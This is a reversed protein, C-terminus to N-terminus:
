RLISQKKSKNDRKKDKETKEKEREEDRTEKAFTIGALNVGLNRIADPIVSGNRIANMAKEDGKLDIQLSKTERDYTVKLVVRGLDDPRLALKIEFQENSRVSTVRESLIHEIRKAMKEDVEGSLSISPTITKTIKSSPAELSIKGVNEPNSRNNESKAEKVAVDKEAVEKKTEAKEVKELNLLEKKDSKTKVPKEDQKENKIPSHNTDIQQGSKEPYPIINNKLCVGHAANNDLLMMAIKESEKDDFVPLEKKKKDKQPTEKVAEKPKDQKIEIGFIYRIGSLEERGKPNEIKNESNIEAFVEKEKPMKAKSDKVKKNEASPKEKEFLEGIINGFSNEPSFKESDFLETMKKDDPLCPRVFDIINDVRM